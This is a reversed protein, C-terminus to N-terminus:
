RNMFLSTIFVHNNRFVKPQYKHVGCMPDKEYAFIYQVTIIEPDKNRLASYYDDFLPELAQLLSPQEKM